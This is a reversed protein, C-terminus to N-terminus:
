LYGIILLIERNPFHTNKLCILKIFYLHINILPQTNHVYTYMNCLTVFYHKKVIILFTSIHTRDCGNSYGSWCSANMSM